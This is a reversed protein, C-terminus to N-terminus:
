KSRKMYMMLLGQDHGLYKDVLAIYMHLGMVECMSLLSMMLGCVKVSWVYVYCIFANWGLRPLVKMMYDNLGVNNM